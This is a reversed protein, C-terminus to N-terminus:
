RGMGPMGPMGTNGSKAGGSVKSTGSDVGTIIMDGENLSGKKIETFLGDTIGVVVKESHVKDDNGYVWITSYLDTGYLDASNLETRDGRGPKKSGTKSVTKDGNNDPYPFNAVADPRFRIAGNPLKLCDNRTESTITVNATMGPMLKLDPNPASIIVQYKVVGQDMVSAQRIQKVTGNFIESDFADVTFTSKMGQNLKGIDAEDVNAYVEMDRLNRALTFLKPASFSAAVTQGVDVNRSVVVGDMPSYINTYSLNINAEKLKSTANQIGAAGQRVQAETARAQAKVSEQAIISSELNAIAGNVQMQEAKVSSSAQGSGAKAVEVSAQSVKYKTDAADMETHSIFDQKMLEESRRFEALDNALQAEAKAQNAKSSKENNLAGALNARSVEVQAASNNSSSQAERVKSLANQYQAQSNSATARASDLNADAEDAQANYLQPDIQALLQGKKVPSNFDVYLRTVKGSVQCGIDVSILATVTGTANVTSEITGRDLKVTVFHPKKKATLMTGWITGAVALVIIILILWKFRKITKWM